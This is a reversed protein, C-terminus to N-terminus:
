NTTEDTTEDTDWNKIDEISETSLYIDTLFLQNIPLKISFKMDLLLNKLYEESM